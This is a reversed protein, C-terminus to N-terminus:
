RCSCAKWSRWVLCVLSHLVAVLCHIFSADCQMTNMHSLKKKKGIKAPKSCYVATTEFPSFIEHRLNGVWRCQDYFVEVCNVGVSCWYILAVCTFAMQWDSGFWEARFWDLLDCWLYLQDLYLTMRVISVPPPWTCVSRCWLGYDCLYVYLYFYLALGPSALIWTTVRSQLRFMWSKPFPGCNPCGFQPFNCCCGLVTSFLWLTWFVSRLCSM